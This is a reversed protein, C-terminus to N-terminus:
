FIVLTLGCTQSRETLPKLHNLKLLLVKCETVKNIKLYSVCKGTPAMALHEMGALFVLSTRSQQHSSANGIKTSYVYGYM